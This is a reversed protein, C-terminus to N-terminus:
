KIDGGGGVWCVCVCVRHQIPYLMKKIITTAESVEAMLNSYPREDKCIMSPLSPVGRHIGLDQDCM